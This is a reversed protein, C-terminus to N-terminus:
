LRSLLCTHLVYTHTCTRMHTRTHMCTHIYIYITCTHIHTHACVYVCMHICRCIRMRVHISLHMCLLICVCLQLRMPARVVVSTGHYPSNAEAFSTSTQSRCNPIVNQLHNIVQVGGVIRKPCGLYWRISVM